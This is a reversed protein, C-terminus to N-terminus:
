RGAGARRSPRGRAGPARSEGSGDDLIGVSRSGPRPPIRRAGPSGMASRASELGSKASEGGVTASNAGRVPRASSTGRPRSRGRPGVVSPPSRARRPVPRRGLSPATRARRGSTSTISSSRRVRPRASSERRAARRPRATCRRSRRPPRNRRIRPRRSPARTPTDTTSAVLPSRTTTCARPSSACAAGESLDATGSATRAITAARPRLCDRQRQLTSSPSAHETSSRASSAGIPASSSTTPERPSPLRSPRSIPLVLASSTRCAVRGTTTTGACEYRKRREPALVHSIDRGPGDLAVTPDVSRRTKALTEDSNRAREPMGRRAPAFHTTM